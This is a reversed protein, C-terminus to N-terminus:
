DFCSSSSSSIFGGLPLSFGVEVLPLVMGKALLALVNVGSTVGSNSVVLLTKSEPSLNM